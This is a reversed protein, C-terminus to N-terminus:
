LGKQKFYDNLVQEVVLLRDMKSMITRANNASTIYNSEGTVIFGALQRAPDYGQERLAPVVKELIETLFANDDEARFIMTKDLNSM